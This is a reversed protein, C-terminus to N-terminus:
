TKNAVAYLIEENSLIINLLDEKSLSKIKNLDIPKNLQYSLQELYSKEAKTYIETTAVSEHGGLQKVKNMDRTKKYAITLASGKISHPSLTRGIKEGYKEMVYRIHHKKINPFIFDEGEIKYKLLEEYFEDTVPKEIVKKGKDKVKVVWVKAGTIDTERNINESWKMSLTASVRNATIYMTKVCMYLEDKISSDYNEKIFTYLGEVESTNYLADYHNKEVVLKIDFISPDIKMGDKKFQSFVSKVSRLKTVITSESNKKARLHSIFQLIDRNKLNVIEKERVLEINKGWIFKCFEETRRVYEESTRVSNRTDIFAEFSEFVDNRKLGFQLVNTM